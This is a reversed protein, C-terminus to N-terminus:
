YVSVADDIMNDMTYLKRYLSRGNYAIIRAKEDNNKLWNITEILDSLDNKVPVYHVWPIWHRQYLPTSKSEVIIPVSDSFLIQSGRAWPSANGDISIM